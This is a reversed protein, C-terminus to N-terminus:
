NIFYGAVRWVGDHDQTITVTEAANLKHEFHSTFQLVVYLGDPTGPLSMTSVASKETRERLAGLPGRVSQAAQQWSSSTVAVKFM